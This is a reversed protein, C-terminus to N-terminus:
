SMQTEKRVSIHLSCCVNFEVKYKGLYLFSCFDFLFFVFLCIRFNM